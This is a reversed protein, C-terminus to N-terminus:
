ETRQIQRNKRWISFVWIPHLFLPGNQGLGQARRRSERLQTFVRRNNPARQLPVPFTLALFQWLIIISPPRLHREPARRNVREGVDRRGSDRIRHNIRSSRTPGLLSPPQQQKEDDRSSGEWSRRETHTCRMVTCTLTVYVNRSRGLSSTSGASRVKIVHAPGKRRRM